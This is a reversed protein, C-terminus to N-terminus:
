HTNNDMRDHQSNLKQNIDHFENNSSFDIVM